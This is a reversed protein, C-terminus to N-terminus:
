RATDKELVLIARLVLYRAADSMRLWQERRIRYLRRLVEDQNM